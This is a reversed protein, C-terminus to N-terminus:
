QKIYVSNAAVLGQSDILEGMVNIHNCLLHDMFGSGPFGGDGILHNKANKRAAGNRLAAKTKAGHGGALGGPQSHGKFVVSLKNKAQTVKISTDLKEHAAMAMKKNAESLLLGFGNGLDVWRSDIGNPHGGVEPRAALFHDKHANPLYRVYPCLLQASSNTLRTDNMVASLPAFQSTDEFVEEKLLDTIEVSARFRHWEKKDRAVPPQNVASTTPGCAQRKIRRAQCFAAANRVAESLALSSIGPDAETGTEALVRTVHSGLVSKTAFNGLQLAATQDPYQLPVGLNMGAMVEVVAM